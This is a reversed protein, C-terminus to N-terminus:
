PLDPQEALVEAPARPSNNLMVGVESNSGYHMVIDTTGPAVPFSRGSRCYMFRLQGTRCGWAIIVSWERNEPHWFVSGVHCRGFVAM